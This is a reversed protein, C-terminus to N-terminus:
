AEDEPPSAWAAAAALDDPLASQFRVREGTEPHEFM